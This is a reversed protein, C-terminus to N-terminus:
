QRIQRPFPCAAVRPSRRDQRQFIWFREDTPRPHAQCALSRQFSGLPAEALPQKIEDRSTRM